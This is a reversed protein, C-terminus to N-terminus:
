LQGLSAKLQWARFKDSRMSRSEFATRNKRTEIRSPSRRRSLRISFWSRSRRRRCRWRSRGCRLSQRRCCDWCTLHASKFSDKIHRLRAEMLYTEAITILYNLTLNSIWQNTLQPVLFNAWTMKSKFDFHTESKIWISIHTNTTNPLKPKSISIILVKLM